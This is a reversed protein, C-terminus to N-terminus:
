EIVINFVVTDSSSGSDIDLKVEWWGAMSFKVGELLYEGEGLEETIRPETPFGHNHQPMGGDVIIEAGEVVQGDPDEIHVTWSHIENLVLPDMNSTVTVVFLEGDSIKSTSTDLDSPIDMNMSSMEVDNAMGESDDAGNNSCAASLSVVILMLVMFLYKMKM